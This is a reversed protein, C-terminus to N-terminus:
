EPTDEHNHLEEACENEYDSDHLTNDVANINAHADDDENNDGKSEGLVVRVTMEM